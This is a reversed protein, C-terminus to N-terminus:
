LVCEVRFNQFEELYFQEEKAGVNPFLGTTISISLMRITNSAKAGSDEQGM